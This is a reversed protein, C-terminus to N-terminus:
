RSKKIEDDPTQYSFRLMVRDKTKITDGRHYATFSDIFLGKGKLGKLAIIDDTKLNNEFKDISIKGKELSQTRFKM